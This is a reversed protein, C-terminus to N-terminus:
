KRRRFLLLSGLGLVGLAITSPEPVSVVLGQFKTQDSGSWIVAAASSSLGLTVDRVATKGTWGRDNSAVIQMSVRQNETTGAIQFISPLGTLSGDSAPNISMVGGAALTTPEGGAPGWYVSITLGDQANALRDGVGDGDLDIRVKTSSLPGNLPNITGQAFSSVVACVALTLTLLTKKM